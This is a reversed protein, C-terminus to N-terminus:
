SVANMVSSVVHWGTADHVMVATYWGACLPGCYYSYAVDYNGDPRRVPLGVAFRMAMSGNTMGQTWTSGPFAEINDKRLDALYEPPLDVQGGTDPSPISVFYRTKPAVTNKPRDANVQYRLIVEALQQLDPAPYKRALALAEAKQRAGDMQPHIDEKAVCGAAPPAELCALATSENVRAVFHKTTQSDLSADIQIVWERTTQDFYIGSVSFNHSGTVRGALLMAINSASQGDILPEVQAETAQVLPSALWAILFGIFMGLRDHLTM